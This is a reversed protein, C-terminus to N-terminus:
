NAASPYKSFQMSVQVCLNIWDVTWPNDIFLSNITSVECCYMMMELKFHDKGYEMKNM